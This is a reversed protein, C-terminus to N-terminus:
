VERHIITHGGSGNPPCAIIRLATYVGSPIMANTRYRDLPCVIIALATYVGMLIM